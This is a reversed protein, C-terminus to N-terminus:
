VTGEPICLVAGVERATLDRLATLAVVSRLKVPLRAIADLLRQAGELDTAARDPSNNHAVDGALPSENRRKRRAHVRLSARVAIRYIWTWLGADGRFRAVGRMVDVRTEQVADQADARNGCLRLALSYLRAGYLDYLERFAEDRTAADRLRRVFQADETM